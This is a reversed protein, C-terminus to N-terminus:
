NVSLVVNHYQASEVDLSHQERIFREARDLMAIDDPQWTNIVEALCAEDKVAIGRDPHVLDLNEDIERVVCPKRMLMAEIISQAQGESISTNLVCQVRIESMLLLLAERNLGPCWVVNSLAMVERLVRQAYSDDISSGVLVLLCPVTVRSWARVAFLQDKVPRLGGPLLAVPLTSNGLATISGVSGVCTRMWQGGLTLHATPDSRCPPILVSQRIIWVKGRVHPWLSVVRREMVESFCVCRDAVDVVKTMTALHVPDKSYENVDTGGFVLICRSAPILLRGDPGIVTASRLAHLVILAAFTQQLIQQDQRVASSDVLVAERGFFLAIRHATSMNGSMETLPAVIAIQDVIDSKAPCQRVGSSVAQCQQM